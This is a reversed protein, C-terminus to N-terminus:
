RAALAIPARPIGAHRDAAPALIAGLRAAHAPDLPAAAYPFLGAFNEAHLLKEDRLWRAFDLLAEHPFAAADWAIAFRDALALAAGLPKAMEFPILLTVTKLRPDPRRLTALASRLATLSAPAGPALVIPAPLQEAAHALAGIDTEGLLGALGPYNAPTELNLAFGLTPQLSCEVLLDGTLARGAPTHIFAPLTTDSFFLVTIKPAHSM